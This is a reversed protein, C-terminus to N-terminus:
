GVRSKANNGGPTVRKATGMQCDDSRCCDKQRSRPYIAAVPITVGVEPLLLEADLGEITEAGWGTSRRRVTIEPRDTELMVYALITSVGAYEVAKVRRDTLATSPSLVEFVITPSVTDGEDDSSACAM